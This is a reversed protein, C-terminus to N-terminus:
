NTSFVLGEVILRFLFNISDYKRVFKSVTNSDLSVNIPNWIKNHKEFNQLGKVFLTNVIENRSM